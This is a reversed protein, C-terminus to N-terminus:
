PARSSITYVRVPILPEFGKREAVYLVEWYPPKKNKYTASLFGIDLVADCPAPNANSCFSDLLKSMLLPAFFRRKVCVGKAVYSVEPYPPKKYTASLFGFPFLVFKSFDSNTKNKLVSYKPM